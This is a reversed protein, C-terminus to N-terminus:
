EYDEEAYRRKADEFRKNRRSQQNANNDKNTMFYNKVVDNNKKFNKKPIFDSGNKVTKDINIKFLSNFKVAPEAIKGDKTLEVAFMSTKKVDPKINDYSMASTDSIMGSTVTFVIDRAVKTCSSHDENWRFSSTTFNIDFGSYDKTGKVPDVKIILYCVKSYLVKDQLNIKIADVSITKAAIIEASCGEGVKDIVISTFAGNYPIVAIVYVSDVSEESESAKFADSKVTNFTTNITRYKEIYKNSHSYLVIDSDDDKRTILKALSVKKNKKSDAITNITESVLNINDKAVFESTEYSVSDISTGDAKWFVPNIIKINCTKMNNGGYRTVCEILVDSGVSINIDTNLITIIKLLFIVIPVFKIM